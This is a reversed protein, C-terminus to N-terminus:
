PEKAALVALVMLQQIISTEIKSCSTGRPVLSDEASRSDLVLM